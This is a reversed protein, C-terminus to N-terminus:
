TNQWFVYFKAFKGADLTNGARSHVYYCREPAKCNRWCYIVPYINSLMLNRTFLISMM